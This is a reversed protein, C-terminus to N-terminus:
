MPERRPIDSPLPASVCLPLMSWYIVANTRLEPERVLFSGGDLSLNEDRAGSAVSVARWFGSVTRCWHLHKSLLNEGKLKLIKM